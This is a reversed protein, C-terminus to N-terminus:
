VAVKECETEMLVLLDDFRGYESIFDANKIVSEPKNECLWRLIVRFVRREGLGGRIDRAYFLIKMAVDPNENFADSFRLIIEREPMKRMSGILAFLDLCYSLTSKYALAGNETHTYNLENKLYKLM